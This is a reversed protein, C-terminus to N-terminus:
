NLKGWLLNKGVFFINAARKMLPADEYSDTFLDFDKISNEELIKLKNVNWCIDFKKFDENYKTGFVIWNNIGGYKLTTEILPQWSSSIVCIREYKGALHNVLRENIRKALIPAYLDLIKVEGINHLSKLIQFKLKRRIFFQSQYSIFSKIIVLAIGWFLVLPKLFLRENVLIYFISDINILTEDFDVICIGKNM